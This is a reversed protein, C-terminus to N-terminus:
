WAGCLTKALLQESVKPHLIVQERLVACWRMQPTLYAHTMAIFRIIPWIAEKKLCHKLTINRYKGQLQM